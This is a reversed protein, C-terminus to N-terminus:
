IFIWFIRGIDFYLYKELDIILCIIWDIKTICCHQFSQYTALDLNDKPSLLSKLDARSRPMRKEKILEMILQDANLYGCYIHVIHVMMTLWWKFWWPVVNISCCNIVYLMLKGCDHTKVILGFLCINKILVLIYLYRFLNSQALVKIIFIFNLLKMNYKSKNNNIRSTENWWWDNDTM